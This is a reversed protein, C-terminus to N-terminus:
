QAAGLREFYVLLERHATHPFMDVSVARVPVLPDGQLTKSAARGLDVFNKFAAGADCSIYM